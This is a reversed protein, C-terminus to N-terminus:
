SEEGKAPDGEVEFSLAPRGFHQWLLRQMLESASIALKRREGEFLDYLRKDIRLGPLTVRDGQYRKSGKVKPYPPPIINATEADKAALPMM